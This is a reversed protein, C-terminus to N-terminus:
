SVPICKEIGFAPLLKAAKELRLRLGRETVGITEFDQWLDCRLM